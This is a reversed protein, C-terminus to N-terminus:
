RDSKRLINEFKENDEILDDQFRMLALPSISPIEPRPISKEIVPKTMEFGAKDETM